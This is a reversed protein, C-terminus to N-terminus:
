DSRTLTLRFDTTGGTTFGITAWSGSTEAELPLPSITPSEIWTPGFRLDITGAGLTPVIVALGGAALAAATFRLDTTGAAIADRLDTRGALFRRRETTEAGGFIARFTGALVVIVPLSVDRRVVRPLRETVSEEMSRVSGIDLSRLDRAGTLSALVSCEGFSDWGFGIERIRGGDIALLM